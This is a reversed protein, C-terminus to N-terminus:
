ASNLGSSKLYPGCGDASRITSVRWGRDRAGVRGASPPGGGAVTSAPLSIRSAPWGEVRPPTFSGAGVAQCQNMGM